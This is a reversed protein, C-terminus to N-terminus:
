FGDCYFISKSFDLNLLDNKKIFWSGVGNNGWMSIPESNNDNISDIQFLLQWPNDLNYYENRPDSKSFKAYGGIKCGSSDFEESNFFQELEAENIEDLILHYFYDSHYYDILPCFKSEEFFNIKSEKFVPFDHSPPKIHLEKLEESLLNPLNINEHYFIGISNTNENINLHQNHYNYQPLFFQLIGNKPLSINTNIVINQIYELNIQAVMRMPNGYIDKPFLQTPIPWYPIGLFKSQRTPLLELTPEPTIKIFSMSSALIENSFKALEIPIYIEKKNLYM